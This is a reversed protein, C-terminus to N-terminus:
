RTRVVDGPRLVSGSLHNLQELRAVVARPDTGPAIRAAIAWLSDGPHVLVTAPVHTGRGGSAAPPASRWAALVLVAALAIVASTLVAVGRRTLRVPAALSAADPPYLRTVTALASAALEAPASPVPRLLPRSIPGPPVTRAPLHPGLAYETAVSM